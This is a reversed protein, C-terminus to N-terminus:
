KIEVNCNNSSFFIIKFLIVIVCQILMAVIEKHIYNENINIWFIKIKHWM